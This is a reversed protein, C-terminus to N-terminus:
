WGKWFSGATLASMTIFLVTSGYARGRHTLPLFKTCLLAAIVLPLAVKFLAAPRYVVAALAIGALLALTAASAMHRVRRLLWLEPLFELDQGFGPDTLKQVATVNSWAATLALYSSDFAAILALGAPLSVNFKGPALGAACFLAASLPLLAAWITREAQFGRFALSVAALLWAGVGLALAAGSLKQTPYLWLVLAALILARAVPRGRSGRRRFARIGTALAAVILIAPPLATVAFPSLPNEM